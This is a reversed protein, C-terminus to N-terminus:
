VPSPSATYPSTYSSSVGLAREGLVRLVFHGFAAALGEPSAEIEPLPGTAMELEREICRETVGQILAERTPFCEETSGTPEPTDFGPTENSGSGQSSPAPRLM